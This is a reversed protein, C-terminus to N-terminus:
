GTPRRTFGAHGEPALDSVQVGDVRALRPGRRCRDALRELAAAPGEAHAEVSGDPRNRVWGTLRLEVAQGVLWDRYGVGQVRGTIRLRAACRAPPSVSFGGEAEGGDIAM